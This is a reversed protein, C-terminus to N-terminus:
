GDKLELEDAKSTNVCRGKEIFGHWGACNGCNISPTFTPQERDEDWDWQPRSGNKGQGDRKIGHNKGAILLGQCRRRAEVPCQFSFRVEEGPVAPLYGLTEFSVKAASM